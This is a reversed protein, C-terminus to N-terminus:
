GARARSAARKRELSAGRLEAEAARLSEKADSRRRDADELARRARDVADTAKRERAEAAALEKALRREEERRTRERERQEQRRARDDAVPRTPAPEPERRPAPRRGGELVRLGGEGFSSPPRLPKTLRGSRVLAGAEEDAAAAELTASIEDQHQASGLGAAALIEVAQATLSSVLRRREDLADRLADVDGGSLARRQAARLREGLALLADIEEGRAHVLQNVGWAPVVPKRLAKVTRSAEDDGDAKLEKALADREPIFADLALGFIADIRSELEL